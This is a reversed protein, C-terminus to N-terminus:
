GVLLVRLRRLRLVGVTGLIEIDRWTSWIEWCEKDGVENLLKYFYAQWRRKILIEVVLVKGKEDKICKVQDM